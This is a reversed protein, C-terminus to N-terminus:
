YWELLANDTIFAEVMFFTTKAMEHGITPEVLLVGLSYEIIGCFNTLILDSLLMNFM